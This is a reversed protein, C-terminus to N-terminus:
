PPFNLQQEIAKFRPENRLPDLLPSKLLELDPDRLQMATELWTVARNTEGWQGYIVGYGWGWHPYTKQVKELMGLAESHRGLKELVMALCFQAYDLKPNRECSARANGLDGAVYYALGLQASFSAEGSGLSEADKYAAIADPYRRVFLLADGLYSHASPNLPDLALARRTSTIGLENRGMYVNFLGFDRLVRANSRGLGLAQQFEESANQFKLLSEYSLALALHADGLAPAIAVARDADSKAEDLGDRVASVAGQPFRGSATAAWNTALSKRAVSRAAYALAYNPDLRIAEGYDGIASVVDSEGAAWYRTTARLYADFAAANQTGGIEIKQAEDGLLTVQLASAVATAIQTQLQLVDGLNRDYTQSWLHFGTTGSILQTTIRVTQASRRVSGELVAGVNLQHAVTLIDPHTGQFSFSSTRAAVQLQDIRSLSNLLEETLGESFYEQQKDGSMNVFPLVAISHPPPHFAAPSNRDAPATAAAAPPRSIWHKEVALYAAAALLLVAGIWALVRRSWGTSPRGSVSLPGAAAKPRSISQPEGCLLRRVRVVFAQTTEGGPLHTWQLERFRDPVQEDDEPTDDIVVPLLFAKTATFLHSRDVALKWELRFYGEARADTNRSILPVFLACTKIQRRISQDWAEGGRLESKDFWVEVGATRLGVALREAAAADESAYSLFVAQSPESMWVGLM